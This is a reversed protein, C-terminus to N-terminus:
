YTPQVWERLWWVKKKTNELEICKIRQLELLIPNLDKEKMPAINYKKLEEELLPYIESDEINNTKPDRNNWMTWIVAAHKESLKIERLDKWYTKWLVLGTLVLLFPHTLGGSVSLIIEPCSKVLKRMNFRINGAKRSSGGGKGGSSMTILELRFEEEPPKIKIFDSIITESIKESTEPLLSHNNMLSNKIIKKIEGRKEAAEQELKM